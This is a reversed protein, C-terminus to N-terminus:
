FGGIWAVVRPCPCGGLVSDIANEYNWALGLGTESGVAERSIGNEGRPKKGNARRWVRINRWVNWCQKSIFYIFFFSCVKRLSQKDTRM